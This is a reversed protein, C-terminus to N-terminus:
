AWGRPASCPTISGVDGGDEIHISTGEWVHLIPLEFCGVPVEFILKAEPMEHDVSFEFPEALRWAGPTVEHWRTYVVEHIAGDGDVLFTPCTEITQIPPIVCRM